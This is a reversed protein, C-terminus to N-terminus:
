ERGQLNNKAILDMPDTYTLDFAESVGRCTCNGGYCNIGAILGPTTSVAKELGNSAIALGYSLTTNTLAITSTRSVVGPMNAVCYHIIDEIIFIPDQHTTARTTEFCGGQDVAVDVMVAGKKMMNIDEKYILKPAAKGPLLVAGIILEAQRIVDQINARTSYLTTVACGFIDDFYALRENNVDLVTVNAGMGVAIKCANLGVVGGGIIVVSSRKVGPVGGLLMGRGGFTRELYKAGEQISLRGAIESM